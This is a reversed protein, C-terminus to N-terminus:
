TSEALDLGACRALDAFGPFSTAVNAVDDIQIPAHALLSAIAFAM